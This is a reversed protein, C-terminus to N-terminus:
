NDVWGWARTCSKNNAWKPQRPWTRRLEHLRWASWPGSLGIVASVWSDCGILDSSYRGLQLCSYVLPEERQSQNNTQYECLSLTSPWGTDPRRWSPPVKTTGRRSASHNTLHFVNMRERFVKSGTHTQTHRNSVEEQSRKAREEDRRSKKLAEPGVVSLINRLRVDCVCPPWNLWRVALRYSLPSYCPCCYRFVVAGCRSECTLPWQCLVTM